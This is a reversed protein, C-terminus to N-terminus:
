RSFMGAHAGLRVRTEPENGSADRNSGGDVM